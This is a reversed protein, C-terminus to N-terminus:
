TQDLELDNHFRSVFLDRYGRRAPLIGGVAGELNNSGTWGLAYIGVGSVIALDTTRDTNGYFDGIHADGKYETLAANFYAVFGYQDTNNDNTRGGGIYVDGTDPHVAVAQGFDLGQGGYYTAQPAPSATLDKNLRVVFADESGKFDPIGGGVTWPFCGVTGYPEDQYAYATVGVVYVDHPAAPHVAIDYASDDSYGGIYTVRRLSLDLTFKAAFGDAISGRTDTVGTQNLKLQASQHTLWDPHEEDFSVPLDSSVTQGAIYVARDNPDATEDDYLAIATGYDRWNGGFYRSQELTSLDPSLRSIFVDTDSRRTGTWMVPFHGDTAGVVYVKGDPKGIAMDWIADEKDGGLYTFQVAKLDLDILAIFADQNYGQITQYMATGPFDNSTTSGAVYVYLKGFLVGTAIAMAKDSGAGGLYTSLLPDIVLERGPDYAGLKFGYTRGAVDYACDVPQRRGDLIQYAEPKTFAVRGAPTALVLEGAGGVGLFAAGEVDVRIAGPDAGPRVHFLKEVNKARAHLRLEVGDYVEGLSIVDHAPVATRWGDPDEGKFINVRVSSPQGAAAPEPHGGLLRERIIVREKGAQSKVPLSYVMQGDATVFLAGGFTQAYFRVDPHTQGRNEIFPIALTDLRADWAPGGRASDALGAGALGPNVGLFAVVFVFSLVRLSLTKM